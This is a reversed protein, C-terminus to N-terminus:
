WDQAMGLLGLAERRLRLLEPHDRHRPFALPVALDARLRAPRDSFVLVRNALLLAEEVDHTVMLVTFGRAQWLRTLEGQMALRTLSDLLLFVQRGQEVLRRARELCLEAMRIHAQSERDSSSAIVEGRVTRQMQETM